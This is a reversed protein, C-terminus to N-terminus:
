HGMSRSAKLDDHAHHEVIRKIRHNLQRAQRFDHQLCYLDAWDLLISAVRLDNAGYAEIVGKLSRDFYKEAMDYDHQAIAHKAVAVLVKWVMESSGPTSGSSGQMPVSELNMNISM